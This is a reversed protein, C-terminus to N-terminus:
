ATRRRLVRAELFQVLVRCADFSSMHSRAIVGRITREGDVADLVVKERPPLHAVDFSGLAVDDRLTGAARRLADRHLVEVLQQPVCGRQRLLVRQVTELQDMPDGGMEVLGDSFLVFQDGPRM